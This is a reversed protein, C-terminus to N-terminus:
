QNETYQKKLMDLTRRQEDPDLLLLSEKMMKKDSDSLGPITNLEAEIEEPTLGKATPKEIAKVKKREELKEQKARLNSIFKRQDKPTLVKIKEFLDRREEVSLRPITRLESKIEKASMPKLEKRRKVKIKETSIGITDLLRIRDEVAVLHTNWL